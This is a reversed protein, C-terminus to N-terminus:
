KSVYNTTALDVPDGYQEEEKSRRGPIIKEPVLKPFSVINIYEIPVEQMSVDCTARNIAGEPTRLLSSIRFDTIVFQVGAGSSMVFPSSNTLLDDFGYLIVPYPRSAMNRLRELQDDISLTIQEDATEGFAGLRYTSTPVVLFQFSIKMLKFNKWDVLPIRGVREIETWESGINEYNIQNPKPLFIHRDPEQIISSGRKYYQVMQPESSPQQGPSILGYNGRVKVTTSITAKGGASRTGDDTRRTSSGAGGAGGAGGTRGTGGTGGTGGGPTQGPPQSGEDSDSRPPINLGSNSLYIDKGDLLSSFEVFQRNPLPGFVVGSPILKFQGNAGSKSDFWYFANSSFQKSMIPDYRQWVQVYKGYPSQRNEGLFTWLVFQDTARYSVTPGAQKYTNVPEFNNIPNLKLGLPDNLQSYTYIPGRKATAATQNVQFTQITYEDGANYKKVFKPAQSYPYWYEFDDMREWGSSFPEDIKASGAVAVKFRGYIPFRPYKTLPDAQESPLHRIVLYRIEGIALGASM